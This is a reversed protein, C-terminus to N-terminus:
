EEFEQLYQNLKLPHFTSLIITIKTQKKSSIEPAAESLEM